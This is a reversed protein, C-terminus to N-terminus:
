SGFGLTLHGPREIWRESLDVSTDPQRREQTLDAPRGRKVVDRVRIQFGDGSEAEVPDPEEADPLDALDSASDGACDRIKPVFKM